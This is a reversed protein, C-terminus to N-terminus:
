RLARWGSVFGDRAFEGMTPAKLMEAIVIVTPEELGVSITQLYNMCGNVGMIDPPDGAEIGMMLWGGM